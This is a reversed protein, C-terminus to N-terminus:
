ESREYLNLRSKLSNLEQQLKDMRQLIHKIADIGEMNIDLEYHLRAMKELETLDEARLYQVEKVTTLEVLRVFSFEIHYHDCFDAVPILQRNEM